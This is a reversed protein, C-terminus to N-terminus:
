LEHSRLRYTDLSFGTSLAKTLSEKLTWLTFFLDQRGCERVSAFDVQGAQRFVLKSMGDLALRDHREEVNVSLCGQPAFAM